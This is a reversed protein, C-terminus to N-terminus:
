AQEQTDNRSKAALVAKRSGLLISIPELMPISECVIRIIAMMPVALILGAFGWIWGWVMLSVIIVLPSLGLRDGMINPDIIFGIIMNIVLMVLGAAIIPGPNPWFQVMAFATAALSVAITGINPIFNVVFQILGWVAAFEVGALKLGFGVLIGNIVSIIVKISLYHTIQSMVNTSIKKIQEARPGEFAKDLKERFFAAEFLIFVMFIAVMFADKLLSLFANSFSITMVRVRSRIGIQGWVNDFISLQENYPLEFLRAIWRYIDTIKEEYKPYLSVLARSSTYLVMGLSFLVGILTFVILLISVVRPIHFKQLFKVVPSTVIALFLSITFPLLVSSTIKLVAAFFIVTIIALLFFNVRGSNFHRYRDNMVVGKYETDCMM